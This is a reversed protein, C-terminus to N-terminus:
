EIVEDARALLSPPVTIRLAKATKLNIVLEFKSPLVVPLDTPKEGKLIRAAYTGAQRYSDTLSTGYSMLGGALVYERWAYCAPVAPQAALAGLRDRHSAFFPEGAVVLTGVRLKTLTAFAGDLDRESSANLVRLQIGLASAAASAEKAEGEATPNLPNLLYAITQTGPLVEHLIEISKAALVTTLAAMGTVNGGPRNLSAVLGLQIPDNAATIVIPITATAAKAALASPTGGAAVVVDVHREVLEDALSSLRDYRGEAWRFAIEINQGEIFGGERLGQRFAAVVSTSEGPSRSSRFGIVQRSQARVMLPWAAAASGLAAIFERRRMRDGRRCPRAALAPHNPRTDQRTQSQDDARFNGAAADAPRSAESGQPNQGRLDRRTPEIGGCQPWLDSPSRGGVVM